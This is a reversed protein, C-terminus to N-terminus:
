IWNATHPWLLGRFRVGGRLQLHVHIALAVSICVGERSCISTCPWFLAMLHVCRTLQLHVHIALAAGQFACGREVVPSRTHCPCGGSSCVGEWSCTSMNPRLLGRFMVGRRLRLQERRCCPCGMRILHSFGSLQHWPCGLGTLSSSYAIYSAHHAGAAPSACMGDLLLRLMHEHCWSRHWHLMSWISNSYQLYRLIHFHSPTPCDSSQRSVGHRGKASVGRPPCLNQNANSTSKGCYSKKTTLCKNWQKALYEQIINACVNVSSTNCFSIFCPQMSSV